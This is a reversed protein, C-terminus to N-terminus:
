GSAVLHDDEMARLIRYMGGRDVVGLGLEPVMDYGHARGM